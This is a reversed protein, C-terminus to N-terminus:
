APQRLRAVGGAQVLLGLQDTVAWVARVLDGTLEFLDLGAVEVRRGSPPVTGIPTVLDGTHLGSLRFAVAVRDPGDVRQLVEARLDTLAEHLMTARAVLEALPTPAGNVLVPDTYVLRFADLAGGRPEPPGAWLALARDVIDTM